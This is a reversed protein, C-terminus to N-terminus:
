LHFHGAAEPQYAVEVIQVRRVGDPVQLDLIDGAQCGLLAIGVSSMVSIKGHELDVGRPYVLTLITDQGTVLDRIRVQSHMTIINPPVDEITAVSARNLEAQLEALRGQDLESCSRAVGVLERLRELDVETIYIARMIIGKPTRHQYEIVPVWKERVESVGFQFAVPIGDPPLSCLFAADQRM